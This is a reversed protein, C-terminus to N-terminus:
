LKKSLRDPAHAFARIPLAANAPRSYRTWRATERGRRGLQEAALATRPPRARRRGRPPREWREAPASWPMQAVSRALMSTVTGPRASRLASPTSTWREVVSVAASEGPRRCGTCSRRGCGAEVEGIHERARRSSRANSSASASSTNSQPAGRGSRGFAVGAALRAARDALQEVDVLGPSRRGLGLPPAAGRGRDARGAESPARAALEVEVRRRRPGGEAGRSRRGRWRQDDAGARVDLTSAPLRPRSATSRRGALRALAAVLRQAADLARAVQYAARRRFCRMAQRGAPRPEAALDDARRRPRVARGM